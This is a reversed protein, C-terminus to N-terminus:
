SEGAEGHVADPDFITDFPVASVERELRGITVRLDAHKKTTDVRIVKAEIPTNPLDLRAPWYLTVRKRATIEAPPLPKNAGIEHSRM